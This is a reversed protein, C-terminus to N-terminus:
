LGIAAFTNAMTNPSTYQGRLFSQTAPGSMEQLIETAGKMVRAFSTPLSSSTANQRAADVAAFGAPDAHSPTLSTTALNGVYEVQWYGEIEFTNGATTQVLIVNPCAPNLYSNTSSVAELYNQQAWPTTQALTNQGVNGGTDFWGSAYETENEYAPGDILYQRKSTIPIVQATSFSGVNGTNMGYCNDHASDSYMYYVGGKNLETGSYVISIASCVVRGHASSNVNGEAPTLNGVTFPSNCNNIAIVGATSSVGGGTVTFTASSGAFTSSSVWGFNNNNALTPTFLFFGFGTTGAVMQGRFFVYDKRSPPAPWKPICAGRAQPNWPEMLALLYKSACPGLQVRAKDINKKSFFKSKSKQLKKQQQQQKRPKPQQKGKSRNQKINFSIKSNSISYM